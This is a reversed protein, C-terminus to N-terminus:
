RSILRTSAALDLTNIEACRLRGQSFRERAGQMDEVGPSLPQIGIAINSLANAPGAAFIFPFYGVCHKGFKILGGNGIHRGGEIKDTLLDGRVFIGVFQALADRVLQNSARAQTSTRQDIKL